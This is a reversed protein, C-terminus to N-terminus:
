VNKLFYYLTNTQVDFFYVSYNLFYGSFTDPTKCDIYFYDESDMISLDFNYNEVVESDPSAIAISYRIMSDFNTVFGKLSYDGKNELDSEQVQSFYENESFDVSDYNYVGYGIPDIGGDCYYEGNNCEGLSRMVKDQNVTDFANFVYWILLAIVALAIVSAVSICIVKKKM